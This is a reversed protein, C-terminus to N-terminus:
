ELLNEDINDTDPVIDSRSIYLENETAIATYISMSSVSFDPSIYKKKM